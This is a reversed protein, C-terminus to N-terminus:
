FNIRKDPVRDISALIARIRDPVGVIKDTLVKKNTCARLARYAVNSYVNCM